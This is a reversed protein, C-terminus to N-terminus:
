HGKEGIQRVVWEFLRRDKFEFWRKRYDGSNDIVFKFNQFPKSKQLAQDLKHRLSIDEVTTTFDSMMNFSDGSEMRELEWYDEHDNEIFEAEDKWMEEDIFDFSDFDPIFKLEETKKHIFCRFGVDLQGAIEKITENTM